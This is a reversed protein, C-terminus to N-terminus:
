DHIRIPLQWKYCFKIRSIHALLQYKTTDDRYYNRTAGELHEIVSGRLHEYSRIAYGADQIRKSYDTDECTFDFQEDFNGVRDLVDRRFAFISGQIFPINSWSMGTIGVIGVNSDSLGSSFEELWGASHFILDNNIVLLNDGSAIDLGANWAVSLNVPQIFRLMKIPLNKESSWKSALKWSYEGAPTGNDIYIIELRDNPPWTQILSSLCRETFSWMGKAVVVVSWLM